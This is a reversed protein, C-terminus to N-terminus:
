AVAFRVIGYLLPVGVLLSLALRMLRQKHVVRYRSNRIEPVVALPVVGLISLLDNSGRVSQDFAEAALVAGFALIAALFVGVIGVTAKSKISPLAKGPAQL